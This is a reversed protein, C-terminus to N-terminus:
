RRYIEVAIVGTSGTVDIQLEGNDVREYTAEGNVKVQIDALLENASSLVSVINSTRSTTPDSTWGSPPSSVLITNSAYLVSNYTTGAEIIIYSAFKLYGVASSLVDSNGSTDFNYDDKLLKNRLAAIKHVAIDIASNKQTDTLLAFVTDAGLLTKVSSRTLTGKRPYIANAM